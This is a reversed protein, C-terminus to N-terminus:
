RCGHGNMWVVNAQVMSRRGVVSRAPPRLGRMGFRQGRTAAKRQQWMRRGRRGAGYPDFNGGGAGPGSYAGAEAPRGGPKVCMGTRQVVLCLGLDAVQRTVAVSYWCPRFGSNAPRQPHSQPGLGASLPCEASFRDGVKEESSSTSMLWLPGALTPVDQGLSRCRGLRYSAKSRESFASTLVM